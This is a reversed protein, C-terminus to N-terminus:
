VNKQGEEFAQLAAHAEGIRHLDCSTLAEAYDAMLTARSRATSASGALTRELAAGTYIDLTAFSVAKGTVDDYILDNSTLARLQSTCTRLMDVLDATLQAFATERDTTGHGYKAAHLEEAILRLAPSELAKLETLQHKTM